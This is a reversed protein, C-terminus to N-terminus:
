EVKFSGPSAGPQTASKGGLYATAYYRYTGKKKPASITRNWTETTAGHSSRKLTFTQDYGITKNYIRMTVKDPHGQVRASLTIDDGTAVTSPRISRQQVELTVTQSATSSSSSKSSSASAETQQQLATYKNNLATLSTEASDLRAQLSATSSASESAQTQLQNKLDDIHKSSSAGSVAYAGVAGLLLGVGLSSFVWGWFKNKPIRLYQIM